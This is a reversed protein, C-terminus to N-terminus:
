TQDSYPQRFTPQMLWQLALPLALCLNRACQSSYHMEGTRIPVTWITALGDANATLWGTHRGELLLWL